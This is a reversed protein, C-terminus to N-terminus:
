FYKWKQLEALKSRATRVIDARYQMDPIKLRRVRGYMDAELGDLTRNRGTVECVVGDVGATVLRGNTHKADLLWVHDSKDIGRIPRDASKDAGAEQPYPPISVRVAGLWNYSPRIECSSADSDDLALKTLWVGLKSSIGECMAYLANYGFRATWELFYPMQDRSSIIVNCDLPGSYKFRKLFPETKRLTLRYLKAPNRWFRVVSGMCGTNQGKDGELFQKAEFTSNLTGPVLVGDKYWGECSVEIGDIREQLLFAV